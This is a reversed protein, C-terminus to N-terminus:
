AKAISAVNLMSMIATEHMKSLTQRDIIAFNDVDWYIESTTPTDSEAGSFIMYHVKPKFKFHGLRALTGLVTGTNAQLVGYASAFRGSHLTPVGLASFSYYYYRCDVAIESGCTIAYYGPKDTEETRNLSAMLRTNEIVVSADPDAVTTSIILNGQYLKKVWEQKATTIGPLIEGATAHWTPVSVLHSKTANQVVTLGDINEYHFVTANKFQELVTANYLPVLTYNEDLTTVKIINSGYAKLIDGSMINIDENNVLKDLFFNGADLLDKVTFKENTEFADFKLCGAGSDDFDFYYFGGPIYMYMQDKVSTGECYINQYLFAQRLFISMTSPVALSACKNILMNIGYRFNALNNYLDDFNVHQAEVIARPFYRNKQAYLSSCGYIRQLWNIYSYIQTMSMLYLMLDPADYNAHGSNAHRIFSYVATSALNLPDNASRNLGFTPITSITTLGPVSWPTSLNPIDLSLPTGVAWSFPITASDRLLAPNAAYWSPDNCGKDTSGPYAKQTKQTNFNRKSSGKKNKFNQSKKTNANGKQGASSNEEYDKENKNFRDNKM